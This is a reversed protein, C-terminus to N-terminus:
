AWGKRTARPEAAGDGHQCRVRRGDEDQPVFPAWTTRPRLGSSALSHRWSPGSQAKAWFRSSAPTGRTQVARSGGPAARGSGQEAGSERRLARAAPRVKATTGGEVFRSVDVPMPTVLVEGELAPLMRRIIRRWFNRCRPSGHPRGSHPFPSGGSWTGEIWCGCTRAM